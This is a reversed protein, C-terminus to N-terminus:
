ESKNGPCAFLNTPPNPVPSCLNFSTTATRRSKSIPFPFIATWTPWAAMQEDSSAFRAWGSHHSSHSREPWHLTATLTFVSLSRYLSLWSALFRPKGEAIIRSLPRVCSGGPVAVQTPIPGAGASRTSLIVPM